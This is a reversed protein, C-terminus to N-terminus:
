RNLMYISFNLVSAYSVWLLYPLFLWGAARSFKSFNYLNFIIFVWLLLIIVLAGLIQHMGFFVISWSFNLLLQVFYIGRTFSYFATRNRRKWVLYAATAIMIYMSTWAIPFLWSPPTFSPKHIAQYWTPIEPRTFVSAVFGIVLTITLSIIFPILQFKKAQSHLM